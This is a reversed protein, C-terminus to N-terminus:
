RVELDSKEVTDLMREDFSKVVIDEGRRDLRSYRFDYPPSDKFARHAAQICEWSHTTAFVQVDATRAAQAIAFWVDKIVSYHLGNEIEDILVRGGQATTIALVISVLRRMGEGMLAVPVLHHLGLDGHIMPRGDLLLLALRQLRPELIRLSALLEDQRKASELASFSELDRESLGGGSGIFASPGAWPAENGSSTMGKSGAIHTPFGMAFRERGGVESRLFIRTGGSKNLSEILSGWPLREAQPFLERAAAGDDIWVQLTRKVGQEDESSLTLGHAARRDHFLWAGLDADFDFQEQLGRQAHITFPVTCSQPYSHIHLAELLATKGVNNKGAILNVRGLPKEPTGLSLERFCRFNKVTFSRFM